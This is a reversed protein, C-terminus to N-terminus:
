ILKDPHFHALYQTQLPSLYDKATLFETSYNLRYGLFSYETYTLHKSNLTITFIKNSTSYFDLPMLNPAISPYRSLLTYLLDSTTVLKNITTVLTNYENIRNTHTMYVGCPAPNLTLDVLYEKLYDVVDKIHNHAIRTTLRPAFPGHYLEWLIDIADAQESLNNNKLIQSVTRIYTALDKNDSKYARLSKNSREFHPIYTLLPPM